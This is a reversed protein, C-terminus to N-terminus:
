HRVAARARHETSAAAVPAAMGAPMTEHPTPARSSVLLPSPAANDIPQRVAWQCMRYDSRREALDVHVHSEHYGDSGPGLVTMFRGCASQRLATRVEASVHTDTLQAISGNALKLAKVDLANGRGHESLKAGVVRNRGRCDYSDYNEIGVLPAGLQAAAPAMEDRIWHSVATAMDCRLVAPPNITVRAKNPMVVAELTVPDAIGCAGKGNVPAHPAFEAITRLALQCPSPGQPAAAEAKTGSKAGEAADPRAVEPAPPPTLAASGPRLRPLPVSAAATVGGALLLALVATATRM